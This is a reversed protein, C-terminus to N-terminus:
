LRANLIAAHVLHTQKWWRETSETRPQGKEDPEKRGQREHRATKERKGLLRQAM